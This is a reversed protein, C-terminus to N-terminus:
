ATEGNSGAAPTSPSNLSLSVHSTVHRTSRGVLLWGGVVASLVDALDGDLRTAFHESGSFVGRGRAHEIAAEIGAMHDAAPDDDLPYLSWHAGAHVGAPSLGPLEDPAWAAGGPLECTIEGPCGRSFLIHAATHVGGAAVRAILDTTYALLDSEPGQLFTSVDDTEITLGRPDTESLATLIRDAFDSTMPHVSIRAGIGYQAPEPSLHPAPHAHTATGPAAPQRQSTAHPTHTM